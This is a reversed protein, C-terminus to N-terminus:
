VTVTPACFPKVPDTASLALPNGDPAEALKLGAEILPAPEEVKVTVVVLEVAVPVKVSVTVPVLPLKDWEAFTVSTTFGTFGDGGCGGEFRVAIAAELEAIM